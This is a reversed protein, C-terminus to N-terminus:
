SAPTLTAECSQSRAICRSPWFPARWNMRFHRPPYRCCCCEAKGRWSPPLGDAGGIVFLQDRGEMEAKSFLTAFQDSSITKGSPDLLIKTANPHKAWLDVREPHIERMECPAYRGTRKVFEAALANAAADRPKGIFYIWIKM